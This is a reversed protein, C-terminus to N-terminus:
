LFSHSSFTSCTLTVAVTAATLLLAICPKLM